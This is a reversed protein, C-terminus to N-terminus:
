RSAGANALIRGARWESRSCCSTTGRANSCSGPPPAGTRPARGASDIEPRTQALARALQGKAKKNFHNLARVAGDEGAAVVRVYVSGPVPGLARYAESRLDVVFRSGDTLARATDDAWHRKVPPLGPLRHGASLRFAPIPDLASVPGLLATQIAAHSGLWARASGDLSAADLADYLVGTFRDVAPMTPATRVARNAEVDGAQRATLKLVRTMEAPDESLAVLADLARERLPALAGFALVSVDLPAGSGGPRKSESPPLLLLM